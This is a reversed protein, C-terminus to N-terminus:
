PRNPSDDQTLLYIAAIIAIVVLTPIIFGGRINSADESDAGARVGSALSLPAASQALAGSSLSVMSVAAAVALIRGRM